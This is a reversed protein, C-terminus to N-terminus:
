QGKNFFRGVLSAFYKLIYERLSNSEIKESKAIKSDLYFIIIPALTQGILILGVHQWTPLNCINDLM